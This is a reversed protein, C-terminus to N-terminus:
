LLVPLKLGDGPVGLVEDVFDDLRERTEKSLIQQINEIESGCIAYPLYAFVLDPGDCQAFLQYEDGLDKGSLLCTSLWPEVSDPHERNLKRHREVLDVREDFYHEIRKRSSESLESQMSARCEFCMAYEYITEGRLVGKEILYPTGEDIVRGGCVSCSEFPRGTEDSHLREPVPLWNVGSLPPLDM